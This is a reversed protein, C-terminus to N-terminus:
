RVVASAGGDSADGVTATKMVDTDFPPAPHASHRPRDHDSDYPSVRESYALKAKALAVALTTKLPMAM